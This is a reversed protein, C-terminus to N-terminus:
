AGKKRRNYAELEQKLDFEVRDVALDAANQDLDDIGLVAVFPQFRLKPKLGNEFNALRNDGYGDPTYPLSLWEVLENKIYERESPSKAGLIELVELKPNSVVEGLADCVQTMARHCGLICYCHTIDVQLFRLSPCSASRILESWPPLTGLSFIENHTAIVKEDDTLSQWSVTDDARCRLSNAMEIRNHRGGKFNVTNLAVSLSTLHKLAYFALSVDREPSIEPEAFYFGGGLLSCHSTPDISSLVLLNREFFIQIAETRIDHSVALLQWEPRHGSKM